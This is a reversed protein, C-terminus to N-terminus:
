YGVAIYFLQTPVTAQSQSRQSWWTFTATDLAYVMPWYDYNSGFANYTMSISMCATPFAVPFAATPLQGETWNAFGRDIRGWQVIISRGTVPDADFVM